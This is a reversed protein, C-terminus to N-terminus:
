AAHIAAQMAFNLRDQATIAPLQIVHKGPLLLPQAGDMRAFEGAELPRINGRHDQALARNVRRRFWERREDPSAGFRDTRHLRVM